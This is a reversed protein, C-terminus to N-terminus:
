IRPRLTAGVLALTSNLEDLRAQRAAEEKAPLDEEESSSSELRIGTSSRCMCRHCRCMGGSGGGRGSGGRVGAGRGGIGRAANSAPLDEEEESSSALRIGTSRRHSGHGGQRAAGRGGGRGSGDRM